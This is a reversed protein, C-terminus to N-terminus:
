SLGLLAVTAVANTVVFDFRCPKNSGHAFMDYMLHSPMVSQLAQWVDVECPGRSFGTALRLM